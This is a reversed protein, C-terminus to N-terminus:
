WFGLRNNIDYLRIKGPMAPYPWLSRRGAIVRGCLHQRHHDLQALINHDHPDQRHHGLHSAKDHELTGRRCPMNAPLGRRQCGKIGWIGSLLFICILVNPTLYLCTFLNRISNHIEWNPLSNLCALFSLCTSCRQRRLQIINYHTNSWACPSTTGSQNSNTPRSM